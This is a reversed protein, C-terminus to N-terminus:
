VLFVLDFNYKTCQTMTINKHYKLFFYLMKTVNLFIYKTCQPMTIKQSIKYIICKSFPLDNKHCKKQFSASLAFQFPCLYAMRTQTPNSLYNSGVQDYALAACLFIFYSMSYCWTMYRNLADICMQIYCSWSPLYM